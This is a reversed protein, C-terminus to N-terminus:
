MPPQEPLTRRQMRRRAIARMMLMMLTKKRWIMLVRKPEGRMALSLLHLVALPKAGQKCKLYHQRLEAPTAHQGTQSSFFFFPRRLKLMALKQPNWTMTASVLVKQLRPRGTAGFVGVAACSASQSSSVKELIDLWRHYTQTLLRDAEDAIFWRLASLDVSVERGLVHDALRGPTCILVDAPSEALGRREETFSRQGILCQARVQAVGPGLGTKLIEFVRFVQLALDRTPLVVLARPRPALRSLLTQVVPVAYALTKGQGTPAAVCVDCCYPSNEDYATEASRVLLPIVAGQIPLLSHFGAKRLSRDM